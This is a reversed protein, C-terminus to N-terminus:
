DQATPLIVIDGVDVNNPQNMAYVVAAAIDNPSIAIKAAKEKIAAKIAEDKMNDALETQV